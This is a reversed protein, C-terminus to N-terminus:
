FNLKKKGKIEFPIPHEKITVWILECLMKIRENYMTCTCRVCVYMDRVLVKM